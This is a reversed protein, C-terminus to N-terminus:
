HGARRQEDLPLLFELLARNPYVRANRCHAGDAVHEHRKADKNYAVEVGEQDGCWTGPELEALPIEEPVLLGEVPEVPMATGVRPDADYHYETFPYADGFKHRVGVFGLTDPNWAGVVLNRAQLRYVQRPRLEEMMMYGM